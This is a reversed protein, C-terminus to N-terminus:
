RQMLAFVGWGLNARLYRTYRAPEATLEAQVQPALEDNPNEDLWRPMTLWQAATHRDWDQQDALMM